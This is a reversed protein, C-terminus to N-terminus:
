EKVILNDICFYTPINIGWEGKLSESCDMTFYIGTCAGLDSLDFEKWSTLIGSQIDDSTINILTFLAQSETGDLHVGNCILNLYDGPQFKPSFDTGNLAAYMVYTTNCVMVSQPKFTDGDEEWIACYHSYLDAAPDSDLFEPWYGVLYQSGPGKLGGGSASAYPHQSMPTQLSTDSVKSPTFGYVMGYEDLKHTFIYDDILLNLNPKNNETWVGDSDYQFQGASVLITETDDYEPDSSCSVLAGVSLLSALLILKKM